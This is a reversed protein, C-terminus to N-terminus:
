VSTPEASRLLVDSIAADTWVLDLNGVSTWIMVLRRDGSGFRQYAISKGQRVVYRVEPPIEM